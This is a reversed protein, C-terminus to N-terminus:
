NPSTYESLLEGRENQWDVMSSNYEWKEFNNLFQITKNQKAHTKCLNFGFREFVRKGKMADYINSLASIYKKNQIEHLSINSKCIYKLTEVQDRETNRISRIDQSVEEAYNSTWIELWDKIM